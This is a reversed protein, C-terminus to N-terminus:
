LTRRSDKEYFVILEYLFLIMFFPASGASCSANFNYMINHSRNLAHTEINDM